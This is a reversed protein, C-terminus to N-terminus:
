PDVYGLAELARQVEPAADPARGPRAGALARELGDPAPAIEGAQREGPDRALDFRRGEGTGSGIWKEPWRRAYFQDPRRDMARRRGVSVTRPSEATAGSLWPLLDYGDLADPIAIGMLSLLTPALDELQAPGEPRRGPPVGPARLILPVRVLEDHLNAGHELVGHDGLGEGHDSTLVVATRDLLGLVRLREVVTGIQADVYRVEGRYARIERRLAAEDAVGDPLSKGTLDVEQGSPVAYGTPPEYPTHPDFFHVWLFFPEDAHETIWQAAAQATKRGRTWFAERRKGRWYYSEDPEFVYHDFGQHFGFRADLIFSSVFAATVRGSARALDAVTPIRPDVAVANRLTGHHWPHLGTLLSAHAPGTSPVPTTAQGVLAGEAALRDMAPTAVPGGLAGVHDARLTDVTLLVVRPVGAPMPDAESAPGAGEVQAPDWLALLLAVAAIRARPRAPTPSSRLM